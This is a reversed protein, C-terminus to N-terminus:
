IDSSFKITLSLSVELKKKGLQYHKLSAAVFNLDEEMEMESILQQM